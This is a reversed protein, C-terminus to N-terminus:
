RCRVQVLPHPLLCLGLTIVGRCAPDTFVEVHKIRPGPISAVDDRQAALCGRAALHTRVNVLPAEGIGNRIGVGCDTGLCFGVAM